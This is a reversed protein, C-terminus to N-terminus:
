LRDGRCTSHGAPDSPLHQHGLGDRVVPIGLVLHTALDLLCLVEQGGLIWLCYHPVLDVQYVQNGLYRLAVCWYRSRKAGEVTNSMYVRQSHTEM